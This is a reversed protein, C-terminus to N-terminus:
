SKLGGHTKTTPASPNRSAKSKISRFAELKTTHRTSTCCQLFGYDSCVRRKYLAASCQNRENCNANGRCPHSDKAGTRNSQRHGQCPRHEHSAHTNTTPIHHLKGVGTPSAGNGTSEKTTRGNNQRSATRDMRM